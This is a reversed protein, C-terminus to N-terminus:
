QHEIPKQRSVHRRGDVKAQPPERSASCPTLTPPPSGPPATQRTRSPGPGHVPHVELAEQRSQAEGCPWDPRASRPVHMEPVGTSPKDCVRRPRQSMRMRPKGHSYHLAERDDVSTMGRPRPCTRAMDGQARHVRRTSAVWPDRPRPPSRSRAARMPAQGRRRLFERPLEPGDIAPRCPHTRQHRPHPCRSQTAPAQTCWKDRFHRGANRVRQYNTNRSGRLGSRTEAANEAGM